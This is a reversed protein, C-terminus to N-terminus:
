LGDETNGEPDIIGVPGEAFGVLPCWVPCPDEPTAPGVPGEEVPGRDVGLMVEGGGVGEEDPAAIGEVTLKNAIYM